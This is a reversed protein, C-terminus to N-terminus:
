NLNESKRQRSRYYNLIIFILIGVTLLISVAKWTATGFIDLMFQQGITFSAISLALAGIVSGIWVALWIRTKKMGALLGVITSAAGNTGQFPLADYTILGAFLGIRRLRSKKLKARGFKEIGDIWGGLKPVVKLLDLNWLLFISCMVDVFVITVVIMFIDAAMHGAGHLELLAIVTLPILVERGFPSIFYSLLLFGIIKLLDNPMLWVMLLIYIASAIVPTFFLTLIRGLGKERM